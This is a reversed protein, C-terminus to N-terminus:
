ATAIEVEVLEVEPESAVVIGEKAAAELYGTIAERTNELTEERTDGFTSLLDLGPVYSVWVREAADWQLLVKLQRTTM